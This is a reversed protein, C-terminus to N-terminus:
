KSKNGMYNGIVPSTPFVHINVCYRTKTKEHNKNFIVNIVNKEQMQPNERSRIFVCTTPSPHVNRNDTICMQSKTTCKTYITVTIKIKLLSFRRSM